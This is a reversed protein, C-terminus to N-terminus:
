GWMRWFLMDRFIRLGDIITTGKHGCHYHTKIPVQVHRLNNKGVRMIIESDMSYSKSKWRIKDYTEKRFAKFGTQSDSISSGFLMQASKCLWWNGFRLVWPMDGNLSRSGFVIDMDQEILAGVLKPIDGPNHQNDGDLCVIVNVDEMLAREVGTQLAFGKGMNVIHKLFIDAKTAEKPTKDTSGDDVVIVTDVHKKTENVVNAINKEENFAPIVACTKLPKM